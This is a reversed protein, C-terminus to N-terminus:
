FLRNFFERPTRRRARVFPATIINNAIKGNMILSEANRVKKLLRYVRGFLKMFLSVSSYEFFFSM